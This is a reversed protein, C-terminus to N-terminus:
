RYLRSSWVAWHLADKSLLHNSDHDYVGQRDHWLIIALGKNTGDSSPHTEPEHAHMSLQKLWRQSETVRHVTARWARRDMPNELHSYQLPNGHQEGPSRGLGPISGADRLDGANVPLNKVVLVVQNMTRWLIPPRRLVWGEPNMVRSPLNVFWRTGFIGPCTHPRMQVGLVGLHSSSYLVPCESRAEAAKRHGGDKGCGQGLHCVHAGGCRQHGRSHSHLQGERHSEPCHQLHLPCEWLAAPRWQGLFFNWTFLSILPM